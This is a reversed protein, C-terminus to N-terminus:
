LPVLGHGFPGSLLIPFCVSLCTGSRERLVLTGRIQRVLMRILYLGMTGSSELQLDAPMGSGDDCVSLEAEGEDTVEAHGPQVVYKLTVRLTGGSVPRFAHKFSNTVLENLILGLPIAQEVSLVMDSAKVIVNIRGTQLQYLSSIDGVILRAYHAFEIESLDMFSYLKEHIRAISRIRGEMNRFAAVAISDSLHDSQLRLLNIIVQLNNKVRHHVERLLDEREALLRRYVTIDRTSGAVMLVEGNDGLVPVFIYEFQHDKGDAGTFPTEDHLSKATSIVLAIQRQLRNALEPPYDLEYFNKGVADELTRGWLTLLSKNAYTFRGQLDFIYIFDQTHSLVTDFTHWQQHILASARAHEAANWCRNAAQQLLLEEEVLWRQTGSRFGVLLASLVGARQLPATIVVLQEAGHSTQHNQLEGDANLQFRELSFPLALPPMSPDHSQVSEECKEGQAAISILITRDAHLEVRLMDVCTQKIQNSDSLEDIREQLRSLFQERREARLRATHEKTTDFVTVLVGQVQGNRERLPSYCLSFYAEEQHGHRRVPYLQNEFTVTEGAFVQKYIPQNFSWVEPWCDATRQGLGAPHKGGMISSYSDNYIQVLQETWLIVMPFQCALVLDVTMRLAESWVDPKGLCTTEWAFDRVLGAVQSSGRPWVETRPAKTVGGQDDHEIPIPSESM